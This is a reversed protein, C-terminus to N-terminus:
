EESSEDVQRPTFDSFDYSPEVPPLKVRESLFRTLAQAAEVSFGERLAPGKLWLTGDAKLLAEFTSTHLRTEETWNKPDLEEDFSDEWARREKELEQDTMERWTASGEDFLCMTTEVSEKHYLYATRIQDLRGPTLVAEIVEGHQSTVSIVEGYGLIDPLPMVKIERGDILVYGSEDEPSIGTVVASVREGNALYVLTTEPEKWNHAM